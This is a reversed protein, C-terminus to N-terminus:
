KRLGIFFWPLSLVTIVTDPDALLALFVWASFPVPLLAYGAIVFVPGIFPAPSSWPADERNRNRFNTIQRIFNSVIILGGIFLLSGGLIYDLVGM